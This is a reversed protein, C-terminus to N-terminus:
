EEEHLAQKIREGYQESGVYGVFACPFGARQMHVAVNLANGGIFDKEIPSLYHDICGDGLSVAITNMTSYNNISIMEILPLHPPKAATVGGCLWERVKNSM